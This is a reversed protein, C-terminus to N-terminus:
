KNLYKKWNENSIVFIDYESDPTKHYTDIQRLKNWQNRTEAYKIVYKLGMHNALEAIQDVDDEAEWDEGFVKVAEEELGNQQVFDNTSYYNGSFDKSIGGKAMYGGKAMKEGQVYDYVKKAFSPSTINAIADITEKKSDANVNRVSLSGQNMDPYTGDMSYGFDGIASLFGKEDFRLEYSNIRTSYSSRITLTTLGDEKQLSGVVVGFKEGTSPNSGKIAGGDAMMGGDAFYEDDNMIQLESPRFISQTGDPFRLTYIDDGVEVIYGMKNASLVLANDGVEGGMEMKALQLRYVKSAVKDGVEKAEEKSYTKGYLKRYEPKVSKGEYNKAVKNSLAEFGIKGGKGYEVNKPM